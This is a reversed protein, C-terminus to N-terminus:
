ECTVSVPATRTTCEVSQTMGSALFACANDTATRVAEERTTGMAVHVDHVTLDGVQVRILSSGGRGALHHGHFAM